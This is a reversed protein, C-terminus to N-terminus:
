PCPQRREPSDPAPSSAKRRCHQLIAEAQPASAPWASRYRLAHLERTQEPTVAPALEAIDDPQAAEPKRRGASRRRPPAM